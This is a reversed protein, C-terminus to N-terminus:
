RTIVIPTGDKVARWIEDMDANGVAICGETWDGSAKGPGQYDNPQGHIFLDEGPPVGLRQARALDQSNPYSIHISKYFDSKDNHWDLIYTGEPTKLDGEEIKRGVPHGGLAVRYTKLVKKGNLLLLRRKAKLVLVRDATASAPLPRGTAFRAQLILICTLAVAIAAPKTIKVPWLNDSGPKTLLYHEGDKPGGYTSYVRPVVLTKAGSV